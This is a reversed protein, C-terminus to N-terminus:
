RPLLTYRAKGYKIRRMESAIEKGYLKEYCQMFDRMEDTQAM